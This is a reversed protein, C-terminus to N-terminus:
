RRILHDVLETYIQKDLKWHHQATFRAQVARALARATEPERHLRLVQQALDAPDEPTFYAVTDDPFYESTTATRAVVAPVGMHAYEMLKTPLITDTFVDRRMPVVGVDAGAVAARMMELPMHEHFRIHDAVGLAQVLGQATPMFDGRGYIEVQLDPIDALLLPVARVLIDLGYRELIAGHYILTFPRGSAPSFDRTEAPVVAGFFREDPTNMVVVMKEPGIGRDRMVNFQHQTCVTVADAYGCAWREHARLTRTILHDPSLGFRSMFLNPAMDRVDLVVRMGSLLRPFLTCFALADPPNYVQALVFRRRLHERSLRWGALLFFQLYEMIYVWRGGGQHRSVPMRHIAVGNIQEEEPEGPQCLCFVDVARGQQVLAEAMRRARPEIPYSSHTIFAIRESM